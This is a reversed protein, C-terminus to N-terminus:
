IVWREGAVDAFRHDGGETAFYGDSCLYADAGALTVEPVAMRVGYCYPWQARRNNRLLNLLDTHGPLEWSQVVGPEGEVALRLGLVKDAMAPLSEAAQTPVGQASLASAVAAKGAMMESAVLAAAETAPRQLEAIQEATFDEWTWPDGKLYPLLMEVEMANAQLPGDKTLTIDLASVAVVKEVGDPMHESPIYATFECEIRGPPLGHRKGVIRIRGGDNVCNTLVGGISSATFMIMRSSTRLRAVWDHTPWGDVPRMELSGDPHRIPLVPRLVINLDSKYHQENM